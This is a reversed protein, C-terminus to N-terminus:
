CCFVFVEEPRGSYVEQLYDVGLASLCNAQIRIEVGEAVANIGFKEALGIVSEVIYQSSCSDECLIDQTFAKDMKIYSVSFYKLYSLVSCGLWFWGLFM